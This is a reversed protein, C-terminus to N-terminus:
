AELIHLCNRFLSQRGFQVNYPYALKWFFSSTFDVLLSTGVNEPCGSRGRFSGGFLMEKVKLYSCMMVM